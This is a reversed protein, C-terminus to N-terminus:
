KENIREQLDKRKWESNVKSAYRPISNDELMKSSKPTPKKEKPLSEMESEQRSQSARKPKDSRFEQTKRYEESVELMRSM